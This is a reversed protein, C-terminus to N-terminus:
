LRTINGNKEQKLDVQPRQGKIRFGYIGDEVGEFLLQIAGNQFEFENQKLFSKASNCCGRADFNFPVITSDSCEKSIGIKREREDFYIFLKTKGKFGLEQRLGSNLGIRGSKDITMALFGKVGKQESSIPKFM